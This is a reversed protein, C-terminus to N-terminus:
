SLIEATTKVLAFDAALTALTVKLALDAAIDGGDRDPLPFAILADEAVTVNFGLNAAIRVTSAVCFAAVGGAVILDSVGEDRLHAELGTGIFGSSGPKWFVAEGALPMACAMPQGGPQDKRFAAKPDSQEHHFVHVVPANKARFATVLNAVQDAFDPYVVSRGATIRTNMEEQLDILLLATKTM